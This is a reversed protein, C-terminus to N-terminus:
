NSNSADYQQQTIKVYYIADNFYIAITIALTKSAIVSPTNNSTDCIVKYSSPKYKSSMINADMYRNLAKTVDDRTGTTNEEAIFADAIYRANADVKNAIRSNQGQSMFTVNSTLSSMESNFYYIKNTNGFSAISCIGANLMYERQTKNFNTVPNEMTVLGHTKWFAPAFEQNAAANKAIREIYKVGPAILVGFGLLSTNYDHGQYFTVRNDALGTSNKYSACEYETMLNSPVSLICQAYQNQSKIFLDAATTTTTDNFDTFFDIIDLEQDIFRNRAIATNQSQASLTSSYGIGQGFSISFPIMPSPNSTIPTIIKSTFPLGLTDIINMIYISQGNSNVDNIGLSFEYTVGDYLLNFKPLNSSTTDYSVEISIYDSVGLSTPIFIVSTVSGSPVVINNSSLSPTPNQDIINVVGYIDTTNQTLTVVSGTRSTTFLTSYHADIYSKFNTAEVTNSGPTSPNWDSPHIKFSTGTGTYDLEVNVATVGGSWSTSAAGFSGDTTISYNSNANPTAGTGVSAPIIINTSTGTVTGNNKNALVRNLVIVANAVTTAVVSADRQIDTSATPSTKFTFTTSVGNVKVTFTKGDAPNSTFLFSGTSVVELVQNTVASFSIQWQGPISPSNFLDVSSGSIAPAIAPVNSSSVTTLAITTNVQYTYTTVTGSVSNSIYKVYIDDGNYTINNDFGTTPNGNWSIPIYGSLNPNNGVYFVYSNMIVYYNSGPNVMSDIALTVTTQYHGANKTIFNYPIKVGLQNVVNGWVSNVARALMLPTTQLLYFANILTTHSTQDLKGTLTFLDLLDQPTDVTTPGIPGVDSIVVGAARLGSGSTTSPSSIIQDQVSVFSEKIM